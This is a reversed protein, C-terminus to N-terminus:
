AVSFIVMKAANVAGVLFRANRAADHLVHRQEDALHRTRGDIRTGGVALPCAPVRFPV